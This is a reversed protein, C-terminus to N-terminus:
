ESYPHLSRQGYQYLRLPGVPLSEGLPVMSPIRNARGLEEIEVWGVAGCIVACVAIVLIDLLEHRRSREVRPDPLQGLHQCLRDLSDREM